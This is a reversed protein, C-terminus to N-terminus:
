EIAFTAKGKVEPDNAQTVQLQEAGAKGFTVGGLFTHSGHDATTFSYSQVPFVALGTTEPPYASIHLNTYFAPPFTTSTDTPSSFVVTGTYNSLPKDQANVATVSFSVPKNLKGHSIVPTVRFAVATLPTIAITIPASLSKAFRNTNPLYKAQVQHFGVKQLYGTTLGVQEGFSSVPVTNLVVPHRGVTTFEIVGDSLSSNPNQVSASLTLAEGTEIVNPMIQLSTVTPANVTAPTITVPNLASTSTTFYKNAPLFVADIQYPGVKKLMKTPLSASHKKSLKVTGLLVPDPSVSFFEVKGTIKEVKGANIQNGTGADAVTAVLPFPQGVEATTAGSTLTTTTPVEIPLPIVKVTVPTAVSASIKSNTPKYEAEIRYNGITTIKDTTVSALGQKTVAVDGLDIKQPGELVFDVNGSGIPVDNAADDVTATFTVRAGTIATSLSTQLATTSVVHADPKALSAATGSLM